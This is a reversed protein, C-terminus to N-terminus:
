LAAFDAEIKGYPIRRVVGIGIIGGSRVQNRSCRLRLNLCPLGLEGLRPAARGMGLSGAHIRTDGHRDRSQQHHASEGGTSGGAVLTLRMALGAEAGDVVARREIAVVADDPRRRGCGLLRQEGRGRRAEIAGGRDLLSEMLVRVPDRGRSVVIEPILLSLTEQFFLLAAEGVFPHLEVAQAPFEFVPGPVVLQFPFSAGAEAAFALEAVALAAVGPVQAEVVDVFAAAFAFPIAVAVGAVVMSGIRAVSVTSVAGARMDFGGGLAGCAELGFAQFFLPLSLELRL